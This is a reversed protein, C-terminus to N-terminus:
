AVIIHCICYRYLIHKKLAYILKVALDNVYREVSKTFALVDSGIYVSFSESLPANDCVCEIQM